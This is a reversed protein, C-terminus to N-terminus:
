ENRKRVLEPLKELAATIRLWQNQPLAPFGGVKSGLALDRMVGARGAIMCDDGITLHGSIGVQGGIMCRAGITSSGAIGTQAAIVTHDGIQVNHGVQIQNDLKVGQGIVTDGLAGRDITTNAGIEVHDGIRVGGVQPVKLLGKSTPAFGFGDSGIVVGSHIICDSGIQCGAYVTVNAYLTTRAGITSGAGVVCGPGVSADAAINASASVSASPDVGATPRAAPYLAGLMRAFGAYPDDAVIAVTKAPVLKRDRPQVIVAGAQTKRLDARYKPNALFAIDRPGAQALPKAADIELDPLADDIGAARALEVLKM